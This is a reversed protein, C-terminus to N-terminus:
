IGLLYRITGFVFASIVGVVIVSGAVKFMNTFIGLIVGESKSELAASTMSNAFGTIPIITGAGAFQGIKDYIGLGTLFSGFFVMIAIGVSNAMTKDLAFQKKLIEIIIQAVLCILGGVLFAKIMNLLVKRKPKTEKKVKEIAGKMENNM